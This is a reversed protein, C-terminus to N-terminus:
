ESEREVLHICSDEWAADFSPQKTDGKDHYSTMGDTEIVEILHGVYFTLIPNSYDGRTDYDLLKYGCILCRQIVRNEIRVHNGVLHVSM